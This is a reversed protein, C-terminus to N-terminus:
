QSKDELRARIKEYEEMTIEGSALRRDLVERHTERQPAYGSSRSKPSSIIRWVLWIILGWFLVNLALMVLGMIVSIGGSRWPYGWWMM